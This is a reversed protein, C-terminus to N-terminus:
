KRKNGIREFYAKEQEDSILREGIYRMDEIHYENSLKCSTLIGNAFIVYM